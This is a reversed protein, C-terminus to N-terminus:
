EINTKVLIPKLRVCLEQSFADAGDVNLHRQDFFLEKKQFMSDSEMNIFPVGCEECLNTVKDYIDANEYQHNLYPSSAVILQINNAKCKEVIRKFEDVSLKNFAPPLKEIVQSPVEELSGDHSYFGDSGKPKLFSLLLRVFTTNLRYLNSRLLCKDIGETHTDFVQTIYNNFGYYARLTSKQEKTFGYTLFQPQLDLVIFKPPKRDVVSNVLAYAYAMGQTSAGANFASLSEGTYTTLSDSLIQPSYHCLATSSGVIIIDSTVKNLSYNLLAADGVYNDENLKNIIYDGVIGVGRDIIFISVLVILVKYIFKM